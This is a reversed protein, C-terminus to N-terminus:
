KKDKMWYPKYLGKRMRLLDMTSLFPVPHKDNNITWWGRTALLVEWDYGLAKLDDYLEKPTCMVDDVLGQWFQKMQLMESTINLARCLKPDNDIKSRVTTRQLKCEPYLDLSYHQMTGNMGFRENSKIYHFESLEALVGESQSVLIEIVYGTPGSKSRLQRLSVINLDTDGALNDESDRPYESTKTGQNLFPM